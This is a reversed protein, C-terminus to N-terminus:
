SVATLKMDKDLAETLGLMDRGYNMSEAFTVEIVM